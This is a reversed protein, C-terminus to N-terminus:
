TEDGGLPVPYLLSELVMHGRIFIAIDFDCDEIRNQESAGANGDAVLVLRHRVVNLPTHHAFSLVRDANFWTGVAEAALMDSLCAFEEGELWTVATAVAHSDSDDAM